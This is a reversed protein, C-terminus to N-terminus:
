AVDRSSPLSNAWRVLEDHLVFFRGGIEKFTIRGQAEHNRLTDVSVDVREAANKLRYMVPQQDSM